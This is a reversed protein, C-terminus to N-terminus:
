REQPILWGWLNGDPAKESHIQIYFRTRKLEDVQAPTLELSATLAGKVDHTVTLEFRAPGRVGKPGNHLRAVTAPSRLGEFTGKITLTTGALEATARGSGTVAPATATEVPVPSLRASFSAEGDARLAEGQVAALCAALVFGSLHRRAM